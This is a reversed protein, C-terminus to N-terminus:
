LFLQFYRLWETSYFGFHSMANFAWVVPKGTEKSDLGSLKNSNALTRHEKSDEFLSTKLYITNTCVLSLTSGPFKMRTM